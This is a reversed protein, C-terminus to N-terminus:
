STSCLRITALRLQVLISIILIFHFIFILRTKDQSYKHTIIIFKSNINFRFIEMTGRQFVNVPSQSKIAQIMLIAAGFFYQKINLYNNTSM